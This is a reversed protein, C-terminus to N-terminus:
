VDSSMAMPLRLHQGEEQLHKTVKEGIRVLLIVIKPAHTDTDSQIMQRLKQVLDHIERHDQHFHETNM